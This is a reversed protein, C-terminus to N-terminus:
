YCSLRETHLTYRNNGELSMSLMRLEDNYTGIDLLWTAQQSLVDHFWADSSAVYPNPIPAGSSSITGTIVPGTPIGFTRSSLDILRRTTPEMFMIKGNPGKELTPRGKREELGMGSVFVTAGYVLEGQMNEEITTIRYGSPKPSACGFVSTCYRMKEIFFVQGDVVQFHGETREEQYTNSFSSESTEQFDLASQFTVGGFGGTEEGVEFRHNTGDNNGVASLILTPSSSFSAGIVASVNRTNATATATSLFGGTSSPSSNPPFDKPFRAVAVHQSNQNGFYKIYYVRYEQAAADYVVASRMPYNRASGIGSGTYDTYNTDNVFAANDVVGYGAYTIVNGTDPHMRYLLLRSTNNEYDPINPDKSKRQRGHVLVACSSDHTYTVAALSGGATLGRDALRYFVRKQISGDVDIFLFLINDNDLAVVCFRGDPLQDAMIEGVFDLQDTGGIPLQGRTLDSPLPTYGGTADLLPGLEDIKGDCDNDKGDCASFPSGPFIQPDTDDCDGGGSACPPVGKVTMQADCWGDNDDDCGEDTQGDCDNDKSDCTMEAAEPPTLPTGVCEIGGDVCTRVGQTSCEGVGVPCSSGLAEFGNNPAGDCDSDIDDGCREPQQKSLDEQADCTVGTGAANCVLNGQVACLGRGSSCADGLTPFDEDVEGDCDNDIGDCIEETPEGATVNCVAEEGPAGECSKIGTRKCAGVGVSCEEGASPVNDVKGDCDNDRPTDGDCVEVGGNSPVCSAECGNSVTAALDGDLDAFGPECERACRDKRCITIANEAEPCSVTCADPDGTTGGTTTEGTTGGTMDNNSAPTNNDQAEPVEAPGCAALLACLLLPTLTHRHHTLARSFM